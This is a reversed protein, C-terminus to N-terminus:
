PKTALRDCGPPLRVPSDITLVSSLLLRISSNFSIAGPIVRM